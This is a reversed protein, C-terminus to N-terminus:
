SRRRAHTACWVAVASGFFETAVLFAATIGFLARWPEAVHSVHDSGRILYHNALGFCLAGALTAAVVWAGGRPLITRQAILGVIPGIVVITLLFLISASSLVVHAQMHAVGHVASVALHLIVVAALVTESASIRQNM